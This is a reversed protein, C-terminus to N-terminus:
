LPNCVKLFAFVQRFYLINKEAPLTINCVIKQLSIKAQCCFHYQFRATETINYEGRLQRFSLIVIRLMMYSRLLIVRRLAFIVTAGEKRLTGCLTTENLQNYKRNFTIKVPYEANLMKEFVALTVSFIVTSSVKATLLAQRPPTAADGFM